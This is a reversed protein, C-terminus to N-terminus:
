KISPYPCALKESHDSLELIMTIYMKMVSIVFKYGLKKRRDSLLKILFNNHILAIVLILSSLAKM